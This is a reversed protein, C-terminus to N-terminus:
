LKKKRQLNILLCSLFIVIVALAIPVATKKMAVVGSHSQTINNNTDDTPEEDIVEDDEENPSEAGVTENTENIVNSGNDIIDPEEEVTIIVLPNDGDNVIIKDFSEITIKNTINGTANVKVNVYLIATQGNTLNGVYWYGTVSNYRGTATSHSLYVLEKPLSEIVRVDHANSPGNNTVKITYQVTDGIIVKTANVTKSVTLNIISSVTVNESAGYEDGTNGTANVTVNNSIIGTGNTQVYLTLTVTSGNAITGINWIRDNYTGQSSNSSLLVLRSDLIESVTVNVADTPGNNYIIIIYTLLDGNIVNTANVTKTVTLNANPEVLKLLGPNMILSFGQRGTYTGNVTYVQGIEPLDVHYTINAKGEISTANGKYVGNVYFSINGGTVPNGMDDVLTAYLIFDTGNVVEKTTNDIYTLNLIGINGLNYIVDALEGASNGEMINGSVSMSGNNLIGGATYKATNNKFTSNTINFGNNNQNYIAGANDASNNEFTSNYINFNPCSDNNYIAGGNSASNNTFNSNTLNFNSGKWNYIAGGYENATNNIFNCNDVSSDTPCENYIAGGKSDAHNNIFTSNIVTFNIAYLFNNSIAGGINTAVNNIFTCNLVLFNRSSQAANGGHNAIAGGEYGINNTFNCDVITANDGNNDIAGSGSGEGVVENGTFSCNTVNLRLGMSNSIAIGGYGTNYDFISNTVTLDNGSEPYSSIGTNFICAGTQAYNHQFFSNTVTLNSGRNFIAGQMLGQNNTFICKDLYSNNGENYIVSGSNARNNNFTCNYIYLDNAINFIAGGYVGGNNGDFSSNRITLKSGINYIVGGSNTVTNNIFNCNIFTLESSAYQSNIVSGNTNSPRFRTFTINIFTVNSNEGIRFTGALNRADITINNVSGNGQITINKNININFDQGSKNYVGPELFLTYGDDTGSIGTSIATTSNITNNAAFSFQLTSFILLVSIILLFMFFLPKESKKVYIM